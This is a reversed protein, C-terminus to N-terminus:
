NVQKFYPHAERHRFQQEIERSSGKIQIQVRILM